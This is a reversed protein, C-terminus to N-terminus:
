AAGGVVPKGPFADLVPEGDRVVFEGAVLVHAFGSSPATSDEYDSNDAVTDPDFVVLDADAGRQVRGKRRMAPVAGELIQAPLLTCRRIAEHLPLLGLERVVWRLTKGYCGVSRPHTYMDRTPPWVDDAVEGDEDSLWVADSAFATDAFLLSKELVAQQAEDDEDLWDWVVISGPQTRRLSLLAEASAPRSRSPLHFVDSPTIGIRPLNAPDLFAASAVTAASGYPYAETSIRVGFARARELMHTIQDIMHNSTSNIHCMHLHAGSGAAAAVLESAAELSTHPEERSIFRTHVFMPVDLEAALCALEFFEDRGTNPAYGALVGLGIAGDGVEKALLDLLARREKASVPKQWNPLATNRAWERVTASALPLGDFLHMRALSWNASFGFNIPRGEDATRATTQAVPLAGAELDMSTTVGDLSQLRLSTTSQAHSHLDIFGPCLVKGAADITVRADPRTEPLVCTIKGGTIGVDGVADLGSEPDIVRAGTVLVDCNV